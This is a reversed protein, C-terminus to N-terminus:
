RHTVADIEMRAKAYRPIDEERVVGDKTRYWEEVWDSNNSKDATM